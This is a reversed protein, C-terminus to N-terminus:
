PGADLRSARLAHDRAAGRTQIRQFGPPPVVPRPQGEACAGTLFVIVAATVLFRIAKM